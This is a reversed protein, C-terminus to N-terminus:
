VQEIALPEPIMPLASTVSTATVHTSWGVVRESDTLLRASAVLQAGELAQPVVWLLARVPVGLIIVTVFVPILGAMFVETALAPRGVSVEIEDEVQEPDIAGPPLQAIVIVGPLMALEEHEAPMAGVGPVMVTLASM